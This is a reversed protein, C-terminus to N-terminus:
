RHCDYGVKYLVILLEILILLSYLLHSGTWSSRDLYDTM